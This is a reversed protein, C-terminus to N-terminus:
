LKELERQAAVREVADPPCSKVAEQLKRRAQDRLDSRLSFVGMFYEAECRQKRDIRPVPHRAADLVEQESALGQYYRVLPGPWAELDLAPTADRLMGDADQLDQRLLDALWLVALADWGDRQLLDQLDAVARKRLGQFAYAIARWRQAVVYPRGDLVLTFDEIARDPKGDLTLAYGRYLNYLLIRNIQIARNYDDIARAFDGTHFYARGRLSYLSDSSDSKSEITGSLDTIAGTYDELGFRVLGRDHIAVNYEPWLRLAEDLDALARRDDMKRSYARARLTLIVARQDAPLDGAALLDSCFSIAPGYEGNKEATLCSKALEDQESSAAASCAFSALISIVSAAALLTHLDVSWASRVREIKPRIVM